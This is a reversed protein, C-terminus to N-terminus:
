DGGREYDENQYGCHRCTRYAYENGKEWKETVPSGSLAAQCNM